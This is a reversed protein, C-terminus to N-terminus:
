PMYLGLFFIHNINSTENPIIIKSAKINPVVRFNNLSYHKSILVNDNIDLIFATSDYFYMRKGKINNIYILEDIVNVGDFYNKICINDNIDILVIMGYYVQISKFKGELLKNYKLKGNTGDDFYLENNIDIFYFINEDYDYAISLVQIGTNTIKEYLYEDVNFDGEYDYTDADEVDDSDVNPLYGEIWLYNNTDVLYLTYLDNDIHDVYIFGKTPINKCHTTVSSGCFLNDMNIYTLYNNRSKLDLYKVKDTFYKIGIDKLSILETAYGGSVEPIIDIIEIKNERNIYFIQIDRQFRWENLFINKVQVNSVKQVTYNTLNLSYIRNFNLYLEKWDGQYNNPGYELVFRRHWFEQNGCLKNYLEKNTICLNFLEQDSLYQTTNFLNDKNLDAIEM